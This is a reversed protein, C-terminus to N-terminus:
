RRIHYTLAIALIREIEPKPLAVALPLLVARRGQYQFLGGFRQRIDEVITTRCNFFIAVCEPESRLLGLRITSGSGSEETLYAPEGWKLTETLAGVRDDAAAADFIMERTDALRRRADQPFAAFAAAVEPPLPRM